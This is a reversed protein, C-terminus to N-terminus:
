ELHNLIQFQIWTFYSTLGLIAFSLCYTLAYTGSGSSRDWEMFEKIKSYVKLLVRVQSPTADNLDYHVEGSETSRIPTNLENEKQDSLQMHVDIFYECGEYLSQDRTFTPTGWDYDHGRPLKKHGPDYDIRYLSSLQLIDRDELNDPKCNDMDDDDCEIISTPEYVALGPSKITQRIHARAYDIKVSVPCGTLTIFRKYQSV